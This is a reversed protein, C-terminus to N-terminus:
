GRAYSEAGLCSDVHGCTGPWAHALLAALKSEDQGADRLAQVAVEIEADIVPQNELYYALAAHIRALDVGPYEALIQSATYGDNYLRAIQHVSVMSGLQCSRGGAYGPRSQILRGIDIATENTM